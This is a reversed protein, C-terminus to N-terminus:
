LGHENLRTRLAKQFPSQKSDIVQGTQTQRQTQTMENMKLMKVDMLSKKIFETPSVKTSNEYYDTGEKTLIQLGAEGTEFKIGKKSLFDGIVAKAATVSINKESALSYELGNYISDLEWNIKDSKRANKEDVLKNEYETKTALIQKNLKAIEENLTDKDTGSAKAKKRTLDEIKEVAKKIKNSTKDEKTIESLSEPDLEYGKILELVSADVGNLAEARIQKRIDPNQIAAEKTFFETNMTASIEESVDINALQPNGLLKQSELSTTDVGLKTM